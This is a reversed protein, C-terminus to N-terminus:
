MTGVEACNACGQRANVLAGARVMARDANGRVQLVGTGGNNPTPANRAEAQVQARSLKSQFPAPPNPSMEGDVAHAAGATFLTALAVATLKRIM